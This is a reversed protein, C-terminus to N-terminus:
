DMDTFKDASTSRGSFIKKMKMEVVEIFFIDAIDFCSLHLFPCFAYNHCVHVSLCTFFFKTAKKKFHHQIKELSTLNDCNFYNFTSHM